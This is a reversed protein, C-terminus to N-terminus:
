PPLWGRYKCGSTGEWDPLKVDVPSYRGVIITQPLHIFVWVKERQMLRGSLVPGLATLTLDVQLSFVSVIYEGATKAPEERLM